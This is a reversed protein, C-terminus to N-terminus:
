WTEATELEEPTSVHLWEGEHRAGFLREAEIAQDWLLNMSFPGDPAGDFLRPHLLQIGGFVFPSVHGERRRTLQGDPAMVFDGLGRYGYAKVTPVMLLLGDMKGDRWQQAMRAFVSLTGGRWMADGNVVFFPADGLSPLAKKIGGGTDLLQSEESFEVTMGDPMNGSLHERLVSGAHHLNVVVHKIGAAKLRELTPDILPRGKVPVMPKPRDETVPRMRKGLGAALIMATEPVPVHVAPRINETPRTKVQPPAM